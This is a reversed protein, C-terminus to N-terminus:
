PTRQAAYIRTSFPVDVFAQDRLEEELARLIPALRDGAQRVLTAHARFGDVFDHVAARHRFRVCLSSVPGFRGDAAILATPDDRRSGHRFDPVFHEIVRQVRVQLPDDLDRHNWLCAMWGGAELLSAAADLAAKPPLVNFSSGFSVLRASASPLGPAEGSAAHWHARPVEGAGIARMHPNPELATVRLGREVLPGALRGTGAGIDVCADGPGLACLALLADIANAAYPARLRYHRALESYDWDLAASM